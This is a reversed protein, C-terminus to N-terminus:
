AAARMTGEGRDVRDLRAQRDEESEEAEPKPERGMMRDFDHKDM